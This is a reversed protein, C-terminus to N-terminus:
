YLPCFGPQALSYTQIPLSSFIETRLPSQFRSMYEMCVCSRLYMLFCVVVSNLVQIVVCMICAPYTNRLPPCCQFIYLYELTVREFLKNRACYSYIYIYCRFKRSVTGNIFVETWVSHFIRVNYWGILTWIEYM